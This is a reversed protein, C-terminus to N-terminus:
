SKMVRTFIRLQILKFNRESHYYICYDTIIYLHPNKRLVLCYLDHSYSKLFNNLIINVLYFIFIICLMSYNNHDLRDNPDTM